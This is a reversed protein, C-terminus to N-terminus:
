LPWLFPQCHHHAIICRASSLAHKSIAFKNQERSCETLRPRVPAYSVGWGTCWHSRCEPASEQPSRFIDIWPVLFRKKGAWVLWLPGSGSVLCILLCLAGATILIICKGRLSCVFWVKRALLLTLVQSQSNGSPSFGSKSNSRNHTHKRSPWRCVIIEVAPHLNLHTAPVCILLFCVEVVDYCFIRIVNSGQKLLVKEIYLHLVKSEFM